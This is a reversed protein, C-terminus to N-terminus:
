DQDSGRHVKIRAVSQGSPRLTDGIVVVALFNLLWKLAGWQPPWGLIQMILSALYLLVAILAISYRVPIRRGLMTQPM